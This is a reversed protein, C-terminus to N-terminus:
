GQKNSVRHLVLLKQVSLACTRSAIEFKEKLSFYWTAVEHRAQVSPALGLVFCAGVWVLYAAWTPFPAPLGDVVITPDYNLTSKFTPFTLSFVNTKSGSPYM